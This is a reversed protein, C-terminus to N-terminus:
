QMFDICAACLSCALWGDKELFTEITISRFNMVTSNTGLPISHRDPKARALTFSAQKRAIDDQAMSRIKNAQAMRMRVAM